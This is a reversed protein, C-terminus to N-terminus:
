FSSLHTSMSQVLFRSSFSSILGAACSPHLHPPRSCALVKLGFPVGRSHYKRITSESRMEIKSVKASSAFLEVLDSRSGIDREEEVGLLDFDYQGMVLYEFELAGIAALFNTLLV